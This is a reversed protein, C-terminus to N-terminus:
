KTNIKPAAKYYELESNYLGRELYLIYALKNLYELENLDVNHSVFRLTM